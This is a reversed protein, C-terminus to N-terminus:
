LYVRARDPLNQSRDSKRLLVEVTHKAEPSLDAKQRCWGAFTRRRNSSRRQAGDASLGSGCLALAIASCIVAISKQLNMKKEAVIFTM